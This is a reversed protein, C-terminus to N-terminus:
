SSATFMREPLPGITAGALRKKAKPVRPWLVKWHPCALCTRGSLRARGQELREMLDGM